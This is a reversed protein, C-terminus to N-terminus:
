SSPLTQIYLTMLLWYHCQAHTYMGSSQTTSLSVNFPFNAICETSTTIVVACVEVESDETVTYSTQSLGVMLGPLSLPSLYGGCRSVLSVNVLNSVTMYSYMCQM